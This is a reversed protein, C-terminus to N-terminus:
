LFFTTFWPVCAILFLIFIFGLMFPLEGVAIDGMKLGTISSAAFLNIAVPPTMNGIVTGLSFILGFHIVNIGLRSAIPWLVPVLLVCIAIGEMFTGFILIGVAVLICFLMPSMDLRVIVDVIQKSLGAFTFLWSFAASTGIIFLVMASNKTSKLIIDLVDNLSIERYLFVSIVFAYVTAASASETPTLFGSYIGGLVILPLVLAPIAQYCAKLIDVFGVKKEAKPWQEKKSYIICLVVLVVVIMFGSVLGATFLNGISCNTITAYVVMFISPPIIPGLAGAVALLGACREKPYNLRVLEPYLTSGIAIVTAPSSGSLAAFFACALVMAYCMGGRLRGVLINMCLALRRSIGGATMLNGALIFLPIAMIASTDLATFIRQALVALPVDLLYLCIITSVGLSIAIPVGLILFVALSGFLALAIM